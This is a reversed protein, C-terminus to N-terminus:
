PISLQQGVTLPTGLSTGPNAQVIAAPDVDGYVCAVGNVTM